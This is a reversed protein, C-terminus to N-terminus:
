RCLSDSSGIVVHYQGQNSQDESNLAASFSQMSNCHSANVDSVHMTGDASLWHLM